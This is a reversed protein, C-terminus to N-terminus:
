KMMRTTWMTPPSSTVTTSLQTASHMQMSTLYLKPTKDSMTKPTKIGLEQLDFAHRYWSAGELDDLADDQKKEEPSTLTQTDSVWDCDSIEKVLMPNCTEKLLAKIFVEPRSADLLFYYLFAAVQKNMMQILREAEAYAPIKALVPGMEETQHLEAFVSYKDKMKFYTFLVQRLSVSGKGLTLAVADMVETVHTCKGNGLFLGIFNREKTFQILDKLHAKNNPDTQIHLVKHNERV